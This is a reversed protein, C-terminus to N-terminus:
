ARSTRVSITLLAGIFQSVILSFKELFHMVQLYVKYLKLRIKNIWKRCSQRSLRLGIEQKMRRYNVKSYKKPRKQM